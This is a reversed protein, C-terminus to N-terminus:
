DSDPITQYVFVGLLDCGHHYGKLQIVKGISYARWSPEIEYINDAMGDFFVWEDDILAANIAHQCGGEKYYIVVPYIHITDNTGFYISANKCLDQAFHCCHYTDGNRYAEYSHIYDHDDTPDIDLFQQLRQMDTLNETMAVDTPMVMSIGIVLFLMMPEIM